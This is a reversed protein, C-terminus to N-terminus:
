FIFYFLCLGAYHFFVPFLLGSSRYLNARMKAIYAMSLPVSNWENVIGLIYNSESHLKIWFIQIILLDISITRNMFYIM